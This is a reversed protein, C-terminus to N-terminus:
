ESNLTREKQLYEIYPIHMTDLCHKTDIVNQHKQEVILLRTVCKSFLKRMFLNEHLSASVNKIVKAHYSDRAIGSKSEM